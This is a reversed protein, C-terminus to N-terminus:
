TIPEFRRVNHVPHIGLFDDLPRAWRGGTQESVYIVLHTLTSELAVNDVVRYTGGKFHRWRSGPAPGGALQLQINDKDDSM